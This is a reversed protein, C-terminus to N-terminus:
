RGRWSRLSRLMMTRPQLQVLRRLPFPPSSCSSNNRKSSSTTSSNKATQQTLLTVLTDTSNCELTVVALGEGASASPLVATRELSSELRM